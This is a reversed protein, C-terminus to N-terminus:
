SVYKFFMNSGDEPIFRLHLLFRCSYVLASDLQLILHNKNLQFLVTKLMALFSNSIIIEDFFFPRIVREHTLTRGVSATPSRNICGSISYINDPLSFAGVSVSKGVPLELSTFNQRMLSSLVVQPVAM